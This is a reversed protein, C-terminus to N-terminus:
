GQHMGILYVVYMTWIEGTNETVDKKQELVGDLGGCQMRDGHTEKTGEPSLTEPQGQKEHGQCNQNSQKM